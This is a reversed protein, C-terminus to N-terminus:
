SFTNNTQVIRDAMALVEAVYHVATKHKIRMYSISHSLEGTVNHIPIESTTLACLWFRPQKM